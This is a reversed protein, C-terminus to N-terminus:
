YVKGEMQMTAPFNLSAEAMESGAGLKFKGGDRRRCETMLVRQCLKCESVAILSARKGEGEVTEPCRFQM